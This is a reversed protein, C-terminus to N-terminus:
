EYNKFSEIYLILIETEDKYYNKLFAFNNKIFKIDSKNINYWHAVYIDIKNIIHSFFIEKDIIKYGNFNIHGIKKNTKSEFVLDCIRSNLTSIKNINININIDSLYDVKRFEVTKNKSIIDKWFEKHIKM